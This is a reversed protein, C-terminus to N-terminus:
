EDDFEMIAGFGVLALERIISRSVSSANGIRAANQEPDDQRGLGIAFILDDYQEESIGHIVERASSVAQDMRALILARLQDPIKM